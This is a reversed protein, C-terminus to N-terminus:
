LFVELGLTENYWHTNTGKVVKKAVVTFAIDKFFVTTLPCSILNQLDYPRDAFASRQPQNLQQGLFEATLVM